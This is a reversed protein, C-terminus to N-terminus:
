IDVLVIGWSNFVDTGKSQEGRCLHGLALLQDAVGAVNLVKGFFHSLHDSHDADQIVGDAVRLVAVGALDDDGLTLDVPLM